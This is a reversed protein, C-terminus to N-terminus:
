YKLNNSYGMRRGLPTKRGTTPKIGKVKTRTGYSKKTSELLGNTEDTITDLLGQYRDLRDPVSFDDLSMEMGNSVWEAIITTLIAKAMLKVLIGEKNSDKKFDELTFKTQPPYINFDDIGSLVSEMYEPDDPNDIMNDAKTLRYKSSVRTRLHAIYELDTM